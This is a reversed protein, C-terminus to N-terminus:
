GAKPFGYLTEPNTVLIRRRTEPEPAWVALLDFLVKDDPKTTRETPHPWDSGWVLREPAQHVLAKAIESTDDYGPPGVKSDQYAGSLKVWTRGQDLLRSVAAFAPARGAGAPPIRGLHDLIIPVPLGRLLEEIQAIQEGKMHIQVHWGLDAIRRSLPAIMDVSTAGAQVLNFRLGRVGAADLRRLEADAVSTNVVAIGRAEAGFAALADLMCRNDTGYTSPQVVVNRKTGLRKQVAQYDEVHADPPLLVADAAAPFRSDYIHMHCDAAHAPPETTEALAAPGALALAAASGIFRRRRIM